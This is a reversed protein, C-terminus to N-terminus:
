GLRDLAATTEDAARHMAMESFLTRASILHGPATARGALRGLGLHAQAILPRMRLETALALARELSAAAVVPETDAAIAGRLHHVWAETGRDGCARALDLAHEAHARAEPMRGARWCAEALATVIPARDPVTLNQAVARELL